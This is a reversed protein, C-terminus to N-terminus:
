HGLEVITMIMIVNYKLYMHLSGSVCSLNVLQKVSDMQRCDWVM